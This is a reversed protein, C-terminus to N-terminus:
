SSKERRGTLQVYSLFRRFLPYVREFREREARLQIVFYGTGHPVVWTEVREVRTASGAGEIVQNAM